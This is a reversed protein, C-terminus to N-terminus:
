TKESDGILVEIATQLQLDREEDREIVVNPAVGVENISKGNPSYFMATTIKLASGDHLERLTQVSGKGFTNTGVITARKSDQLAGAVVESASASGGNVIVAISQEQFGGDKKAYFNKTQKEDRGKVSVILGTDMFEDAVKVAEDLLGGPNNRLDLIIRELDSDSQSQLETLAEKLERSTDKQFQSLKVYGIGSELLKAKVSKVIITDRVLTIDLPKKEGARRITIQVISGRKGRLLKVADFIAMDKTSESGIKIIQDRPKIGAKEAPTGEMPAIITLVSDEVTVEMGVGSFKGSTGTKIEKYHEPTLYDSNPDLAQMMGQIASDTLEKPAVEKIYTREILDLAKTFKDLGEYVESDAFSSTALSIFTLLILVLRMM